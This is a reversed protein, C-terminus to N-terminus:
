RVVVLPTAPAYAGHVRVFPVWTGGIRYATMSVAEIVGM